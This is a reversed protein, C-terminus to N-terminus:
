NDHKAEKIESKIRSNIDINADELLFVSTGKERAYPAKVEGIKTIKRFYPQEKKRQPDEEGFERILILHKIPKDLKFWNLYDANYAVANINKFRSYYNIAGAEGYNDARVLVASKDKVGEYAIDTLTAIEKWGQMDAFDQPLDHQKGDEWRLLGINSFKEHREIIQQPSLIPYAFKLTLSFLGIPLIILLIKLYKKWGITLAFDFYVCGAAIIVPYLGAAYYAKARFWTFFALSIFFGIIIWRYNKFTKHFILTIIGASVIFIVCIFYLLQEKLFDIRDIKDLQTKALEKMHWVVPFDNYYQWLLNPLMILLAVLGAFYLHKNKFILRQNSVLLGPILGVILFSISYKNLFGIGLAVATLYLFRNSKTNFYKILFFYIATWSLIDFANPQFLLDLRGIACCILAVASLVKAYLDGKLEEVIKWTFILTTAGIAASVLRVVVECGGLFKILLAFISTVPPVSQFGWALHNAQDLHLFEDRHLEYISNVLFFPLILKLVVFFSMLGLDKSFFNSQDVQLGPYNSKKSNM